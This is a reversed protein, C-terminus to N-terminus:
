VAGQQFQIKSKRARRVFSYVHSILLLTGFMAYQIIPGIPAYQQVTLIYILALSIAFASLLGVGWLTTIFLFSSTGNALWRKELQEREVPPVNALTSRILTLLIPKGMFVSVLMIIGYVGPMLSYSVLLLRADKFLLGTALNLAIALLAFGGFLNLRHSRLLDLLTAAAPPIGALLLAPMALMHPSALRYIVYPLVATIGITVLLSCWISSTFSTKAQYSQNKM